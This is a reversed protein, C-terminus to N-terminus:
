LCNYSANTEGGVFWQAFPEDWQLTQDFDKFWHLEERGLREWFAVPDQKAEEYLKEYAENSNLQCRASFEASPPFLRDEEMVSEIQGSTNESM